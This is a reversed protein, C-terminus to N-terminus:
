GKYLEIRHHTHDPYHRPSIPDPDLDIGTVAVFNDMRLFDVLEDPM